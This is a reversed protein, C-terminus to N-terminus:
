QLIETQTWAGILPPAVLTSHNALADDSLRKALTDVDIEAATAVGLRQMLPLLSRTVQAVQSYLESEAGREVRAGQIMQPVPLGADEFIQALKLGARVDTGARTFTQRVRDLSREFLPSEPESKAADLDLEQFVIVGGPKVLQALRRLLVAPDRFYMLIRSGILADFSSESEYTALEHTVFYVNTLGAFAARERAVTVAEPAKDVGVVCGAPGVLSTALFSTGGTGCGIDLVHMGSAIGALQLVHFTLDGFFRAQETLRSLEHQSHGLAYPAQDLLANPQM